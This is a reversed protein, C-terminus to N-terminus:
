CASTSPLAMRGSAHPQQLMCMSPEIGEIIPLCVQPEDTTAVEKKEIISRQGRRAGM